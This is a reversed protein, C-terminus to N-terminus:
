RIPPRPWLAEQPREIAGIHSRIRLRLAETRQKALDSNRSLTTQFGAIALMGFSLVLLAILAELLTFGRAGSRRPQIQIM